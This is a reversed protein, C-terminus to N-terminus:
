IQFWILKYPISPKARTFLNDSPSNKRIFHYCMILICLSVGEKALQYIEFLLTWHHLVSLVELFQINPYSINWLIMPNIYENPSQLIVDLMLNVKPFRTWQLICEPHCSFNFSFNHCYTLRGSVVMFISTSIKMDKWLRCPQHWWFQFFFSFFPNTVITISFVNFTM